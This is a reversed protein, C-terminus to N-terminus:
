LEIKNAINRAEERNEIEGEEKAEEMKEEQKKKLAAQRKSEAIIYSNEMDRCQQEMSAILRIM